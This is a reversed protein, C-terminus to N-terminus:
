IGALHIDQTGYRSSWKFRFSKDAFSKWKDVRVPKQQLLTKRPALLYTIFLPDSPQGIAGEYILGIAPSM